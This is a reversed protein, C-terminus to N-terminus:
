GSHWERSSKSPYCVEESSSRGAKGAIVGSGVKPSTRSRLTDSNIHLKDPEDQPVVQDPDVGEAIASIGMCPGRRQSASKSTM